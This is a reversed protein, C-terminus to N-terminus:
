NEYKYPPGDSSPPSTSSTSGSTREPGPLPTSESSGSEVTRAGPATPDPVMEPQTKKEEQDMIPAICEYPLDHTLYHWSYRRRISEPQRQLSVFLQFTMQGTTRMRGSDVDLMDEAAMVEGVSPDLIAPFKQGDILYHAM